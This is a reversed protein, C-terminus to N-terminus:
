LFGLLQQYLAKMESAPGSLKAITKAHIEIIGKKGIIGEEKYKIGQIDELKFTVVDDSKFIWGRQAYLIIRKNTVIVQYRNGGYEVFSKSQFRIDEGPLLYDSLAM